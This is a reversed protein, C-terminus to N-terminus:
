ISRSLRHHILHRLGSNSYYGSKSATFTHRGLELGGFSVYGYRNTYGGCGSGSVYASSLLAYTSADRVYITVEGTTVVPDDVVPDDIIPDDDEPQDPEDVEEPHCYFTVKLPKSSATYTQSYTQSTSTGSTDGSYALNKYIYNGSGSYESYSVSVIKSQAPTVTGSGFTKSYLQRNTSTDM